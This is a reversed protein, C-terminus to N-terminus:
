LHSLSSQPRILASSTPRQMSAQKIASTPRIIHQQRQQDGETKMPEKRDSKERSKVLTAARANGVAAKSLEKVLRTTANQEFLGLNINL